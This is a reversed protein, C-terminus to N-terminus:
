KKEFVDSPVFERNIEPVYFACEPVRRALYARLPELDIMQSLPPFFDDFHQAVVARPKIAVSLEGAMRCIDTHGQVPIMLIDPPEMPRAKLEELKLGLSGMDVMSLGPFDLRYIMVPGAPMGTIGSIIGPNEKLIRVATTLALRADFRIHKSSRTSVRVGCVDLSEGGSIVHIEDGPVGKKMLTRAAVKSCYIRAGSARSIAPLDYIHDVHGHTLLVAEADSMDAATKAQRPRAEANRTLYPDILLVRGEWTIRFGATGLWEFVPEAQAM